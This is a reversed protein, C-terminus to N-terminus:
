TVQFVNGICSRPGDGFPLYSGPVIKDLNEPAFRDPDFKEPEPFYKPDHHLSLTPFFCLIGKEVVVPSDPMQFPETCCRGITTAVPYKRLTESMVQEMFQLKKTDDFTIEGGAEKRVQSIEQFLRQQVEQHLAVEYLCIALVSAMTEYGVSLFSSIIGVMINETLVPGLKGYLGPWICEMFWICYKRFSFSMTLELIRRLECDPYKIANCQIGLASASIVEMTYNAMLEKICVEVEESGQESCLSSIHADLKQACGCLSQYLLRLKASSFAQAVRQRVIHWRHGCLHFLDQTLPDDENTKVDHRDHFHSFSNVLCCRIIEPDRFFLSPRGIQYTGGWKHGSLADYQQTFMTWLPLRGLSIAVTQVFLRWKSVCPVGLKAWYKHKKHFRYHPQGCKQSRVKNASADTFAQHIKPTDCRDISESNPVSLLGKMQTTPQQHRYSKTESINIEAAHTLPKSRGVRVSLYGEIEFSPWKRSVNSKTDNLFSVTVNYLLSYPSHQPNGHGDMLYFNKHEFDM